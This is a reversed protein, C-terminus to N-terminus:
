IAAIEEELDVLKKNEPNVDKLKLLYEQAKLKDKKMICISILADLYKPNNKDLRYANEYAEEAKAYDGAAKYVEALQFYINAKESKLIKQREENNLDTQFSKLHINEVDQDKMMKLIYLYVEIAENFKKQEFYISGLGEFAEASKPDLQIIQIFIEEAKAYDDAEALDWAQKLMIKIKNHLSERGKDTVSKVTLAEIKYKKELEKLREQWNKVMTVLLSKLPDIIKLIFRFWRKLKRYLRQEAMIVKIKQQKEEPIQSVEIAAIEPFHRVYIVVIPVLLVFAIILLLIEYWSM